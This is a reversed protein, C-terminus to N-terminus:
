AASRHVHTLIPSRRALHGRAAAGRPRGRRPLAPRSLVPGMAGGGGRPGAGVEAGGAPYRPSGPASRQRDPHWRERSPVRRICGWVSRRLGPPTGRHTHPDRAGVAQPEERPVPSLPRLGLAPRGRHTSLAPTSGRPSGRARPQRQRQSGTGTAARRSSPPAGTPAPAARSRSDRATRASSRVHRARVTLVQFGWPNSLSFTVRTYGPCHDGKSHYGCVLSEPTRTGM